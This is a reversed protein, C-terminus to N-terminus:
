AAILVLESSVSTSEETSRQLHYILETEVDSIFPVEKLRRIIREIDSPSSCTMYNVMVPRNSMLFSMWHESSFEEEMWYTIDSPSIKDEDFKIKLLFSLNDEAAPNFRITFHVGRSTELERLIRRVRKPKFGVKESLELVSIRANSMLYRLVKIHQKSFTVKTGRTTYKCQDALRSTPLQKIPILEVDSVGQLGRLFKGYEYIGDPFPLEAFAVYNKSGVAFIEATHRHECIEKILSTRDESLDTTIEAYVWGVGLTEQSIDITFSEIVGTDILRDVRRKITPCTVGLERALERYSARCDGLLRLLLTKDLKDM